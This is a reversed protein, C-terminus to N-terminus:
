ARASFLARIRRVFRSWLGGREGREAKEKAAAIAPGVVSVVPDGVPEAEHGLAELAQRAAERVAPEHSPAVPQELARLAFGPAGTTGTLELTGPVAREITDVLARWSPETRTGTGYHATRVARVFADLTMRGAVYDALVQSITSSM